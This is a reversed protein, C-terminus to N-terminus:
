FSYGLSLYLLSEPQRGGKNSFISYNLIAVHVSLLSDEEAKLIKWSFGAALGAARRNVANNDYFGGTEIGTRIQLPSEKFSYQLGLSLKIEAGLGREFNPRYIEENLEFSSKEWFIKRLESYILTQGRTYAYGIAAFEPLREKLSDVGRYGELRFKGPSQVILGLLHNEKKYSLSALPSISYNSQFGGRFVTSPGIGVSANWNESFKYSYFISVSYASMLDYGGPFNQYFIQKGTIGWGSKEDLPAYFGVSIPKAPSYKGQNVSLGIGGDTVYKNQYSLLAQNSYLNAGPEMLGVGLAAMGTPAAHTMSLDYSGFTGASIPLTFSFALFLINKLRM